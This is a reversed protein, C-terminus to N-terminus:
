DDDKETIKDIIDYILHFQNQSDLEPMLGNEVYEDLVSQIKHFTWVNEVDHEHNRFLEEQEMWRKISRSQRASDRDYEEELFDALHVLEEIDSYCEAHSAATTVADHLNDFTYQSMELTVYHSM